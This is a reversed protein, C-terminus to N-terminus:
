QWSLRHAIRVVSQPPESLAGCELALAAQCHPAVDLDLIRWYAQNCRVIATLADKGLPTVDFSGSSLSFGRGCAKLCAEKRVWCRYFATTRQLGSPIAGLEEQEHRSFALKAMDALPKDPEVAEIDIGAEIGSTVALVMLEGAHSLNFRLSEGPEAVFPKGHEGAALPVEAPNIGLYGGLIERLIGRGAISRRAARSNKLLAARDLESTSLLRQLRTLEVVDHPLTLSYLHVEGDLPRPTAIM